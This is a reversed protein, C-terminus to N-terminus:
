EKVEGCSRCKLPSGLKGSRVWQHVHVNKDPVRKERLARLEDVNSRVSEDGLDREILHRIYAGRKTSGRKQDLRELTTVPLRLSIM